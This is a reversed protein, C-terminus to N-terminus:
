PALQRGVRLTRTDAGRLSAHRHRHPEQRCPLRYAPRGASEQDQVRRPPALVPALVEATVGAKILANQVAARKAAAYDGPPLDQLSCGGCTGFHPCLHSSKDVHKSPILM